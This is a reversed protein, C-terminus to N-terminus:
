FAPGKLTAWWCWAEPEAYDNRVSAPQAQAVVAVLSIACGLALLKGIM